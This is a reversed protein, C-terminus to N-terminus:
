IIWEKYADEGAESYDRNLWVNIKESEFIQNTTWHEARWTFPNEM